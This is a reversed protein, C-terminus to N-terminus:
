NEADGQPIGLPATFLKTYVAGSPL